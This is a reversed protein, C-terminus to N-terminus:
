LAIGMVLGSSDTAPQATPVADVPQAASWGQLQAPQAVPVIPAVPTAVVAPAVPTAVAQPVAQPVPQPVRGGQTPLEQEQQNAMTGKIVCAAIMAPIVLFGLFGLAGGADGDGGHGPCDGTECDVPYDYACPNCQADTDCGACSSFSTPQDEPGEPNWSQEISACTSTRCLAECPCDGTCSTTCRGGCVDYCHETGENTNLALDACNGDSPCPECFGSTVFDLNCFNGSACSGATCGMTRGALLGLVLFVPSPMKPASLM